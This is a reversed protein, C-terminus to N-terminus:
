FLNFTSGVIGIPWRGAEFLKFKYLFPHDEDAEAALALTAQHAAQVAAGAAANLFAEDDLEWLAAVDQISAALVEGAKASVHNLVVNLAQEHIRELIDASLAARLMEEADWAASDWHPNEMLTLASDWDPVLAVDVQPFGLGNVYARALDIHAPALEDGISTFWPIHALKDAFDRVAILTPLEEIIEELDGDNPTWNDTSSSTMNGVILGAIARIVFAAPSM